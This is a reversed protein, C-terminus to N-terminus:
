DTHSTMYAFAPELLQPHHGIRARSEPLALIAHLEDYDVQSAKSQEVLQRLYEVSMQSKATAFSSRMVKGLEAKMQSFQRGRNFGKFYEKATYGIAAALASCVVVDIAAGVGYGIFTTETIAAFVQAGVYMGIFWVGAALGFQRILEMAEKRTLTVGYANGIRVVSV